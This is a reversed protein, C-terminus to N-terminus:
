NAGLRAQQCAALLRQLAAVDAVDMTAPDITAIQEATPPPAAAAAAAAPAAAAAEAAPAAVAVPTSDVRDPAWAPRSDRETRLKKLLPFDAETAERAGNIDETIRDARNMLTQFESLRISSRAIFPDAGGSGGAEPEPGVQKQLATRNDRQKQYALCVEIFIEDRVKADVQEARWVDEQQGSTLQTGTPLNHKTKKSSMRKSLTPAVTNEAQCM